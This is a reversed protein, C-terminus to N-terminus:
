ALLCAVFSGTVRADALGNGSVLADTFLGGVVRVVGKGAFMPPSPVGGRFLLREPADTANLRAVLQQESAHASPACSLAQECPYFYYHVIAKVEAGADRFFPSGLRPLTAEVHALIEGLLVAVQFTGCGQVPFDATVTADALARVSGVAQTGYWAGVPLTEEVHASASLGGTLKNAAADATGTGMATLDRLVTHEALADPYGSFDVNFTLPDSAPSTNGQRDTAVATLTHEGNSLPITAEWQRSANATARGIVQGAEYIDVLSGPDAGGTLLPVRCAFTGCPAMLPPSPPAGTLVISYRDFSFFLSLRAASVATARESYPFNAQVAYGVFQETFQLTGTADRYHYVTWTGLQGGLNDGWGWVTGDGRTALSYLYGASISTVEGLPAVSGFGFHWGWVVRVPTQSGQISVSDNGLQGRENEGWAWVSGDRGLALSHTGGASIAAVPPLGAVQVPVVTFESTDDGTFPARSYDTVGWKWVTGDSRLALSHNGGAAVSIVNALSPVRVALLSGTTNGTGLQGRENCGWAWVLGDDTLALSHGDGAAISVVDVLGTVETPTNIWGGGVCISGLQGCENSGSAWVTGDSRLALQHYISGAMQTVAGLGTLKTPTTYLLNYVSGDPKLALPRSDHAVQVVGSIGTVQSAGYRAPGGMRWVSGPEAARAPLEGIPAALAGLLVLLGLRRSM